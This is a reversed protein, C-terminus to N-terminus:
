LNQLHSALNAKKRSLGLKKRINKRHKEVTQRSVNLLESIEKSGLGSKIMGCIEIERSTLKTSRHAIKSGFSSTLEKLNHELLKIYKLSVGKLRLKKLIPMILEGANISIDEKTKNKTREMHEILEKLALNKQGLVLKDECLKRESNKLEEEASKRWEEIGLAKSFVSLIKLENVDFARNEQYVVCLSGVAKGRMKVACGIYTKLNYKAVNPDTQAYPTKNLDNIVFPEDKHRTIVDYCIHGIKDDKRKLDKPINWGAITCLLADKEKNYLACAGDLISGASEVIKRINEEPNHSFSLFCKNAKDILKETRKRETINRFYLNAYGAEKIPAILCLFTKGKIEEEEEEEEEELGIKGSDFKEKILRCWLEPVKGGVKTNWKALLKLGAENSYLVEGDRTIRLVPSPNEAPFKALSFIEQEMKKHETIDRLIGMTWKPSGKEDMIVYVSLLSPFTEKNKRINTVEGSWKGKEMLGQRVKKAFKPDVDLDATNLKLFEDLTYGFIACASANAYTINGKLDTLFFSDLASAVADSFIRIREERKKRESIDRCLTLIQKEGKLDVVAANVEIPVIKGNDDLYDIELNRIRGERACKKVAETNKEKEYDATWEIVSRGRIQSLDRHGTLRLYETNADIVRGESDIIVFGTGTTEILAKYKTESERLADEARKREKIEDQLDVNTRALEVSRRVIQEELEDRAKNLSNGEEKHKSESKEM